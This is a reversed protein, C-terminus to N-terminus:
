IVYFFVMFFHFIAGALVFLHWIFHNYPIKHWAYFVIGVTYSIGGAFVMLIGNRGIANSLNTYDFVILWGMFLYM